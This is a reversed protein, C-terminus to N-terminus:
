TRFNRPTTTVVIEDDTEHFDRFAEIFEEVVQPRDDNLGFKKKAASKLFKFESSNDTCEQGHTISELIKTVYSVNLSFKKKVRYSTISITQSTKEM